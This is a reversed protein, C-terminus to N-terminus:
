ESKVDLPYPWYEPEHMRFGWRGWATTVEYAHVSADRTKSEFHYLEAHPTWFISYGKWTVKMCLDVDNFAGPLLSTLGGVERYVDASILACAATVGAVEREVLYGNLPGSSGRPVFMGIHSADGEYYTHGAHQITDDDYYLMAGVMGAGPLQALALMSEMWGPTIITVDDNLLLLYEGRSHLAGLNVKSSFNFPETWPILRLRDGASERLSRVTREDAVDDIVVVIEFNRYTSERLISDVADVVLCHELSGVARFQGRTPIVISILPEGRLIRRTDHVGNAGISLVEGGGTAALHETLAVRSSEMAISGLSPWPYPRRILPEDIHVARVGNRSARLALDYAEAGPIDRVGGLWELFQRRWLVGEGLYWQCRLREPSFGPKSITAVDEGDISEWEDFYVLDAQKIETSWAKLRQYAGPVFTYDSSVITIFEGRAADVDSLIEWEESPWDALSGEFKELQATSMAGSLLVYSVLPGGTQSAM